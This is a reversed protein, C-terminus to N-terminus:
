LRSVHSAITCAPHSQVPQQTGEAGGGKDGGAIGGGGAVGDGGADGAGLAHLLGQRVPVQLSKVAVNEHSCNV